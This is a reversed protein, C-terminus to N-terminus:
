ANGFISSIQGPVHTASTPVDDQTALGHLPLTLPQGISGPVGAKSLRGGDEVSSEKVNKSVKVKKQPKDTKTETAGFRHYKHRDPRGFVQQPTKLLAFSALGEDEGEQVPFIQANQIIEVIGADDELEKAEQHDARSMKKARDFIAHEITNELILTEVLVERTQGIRHARKIAQAELDPRNVPNVILVVSAVNLNLGLAGCAVDILLVRVDSDENFLKVYESRKNNDLTRAYIRHNVYLMELCQAIYYAANDGEYFIIIKETAQHQMVKEVLYTLKASTTGIVRTNLLPSNSALSATEDALTLKRKRPRVPSPPNMSDQPSGPAEAMVGKQTFLKGTMASARRSTLSQQGGICSSPVGSKQLQSDASMREVDFKGKDEAEAMASIKARVTQGVIDLGTTPDQSLINSDVHLQGELLQTIGVMTPKAPYTLSFDQEYAQPWTHIAMGVEHATSLAIWAQSTALKSIVHSSEFLLDADERSCSKDEKALYKESTEITSIVDSLSFGTWTFNSQRLNRILSHRAKASNKHFLYDVDTRESTVANARLVQIFLNATMKDFWCPKLYVIRHRMPPLVIDKDVDEPRTKVVLGELTRLFCSSFGSYTKRYHHEHRYVYEDWDLKTEITSDCWPRVM